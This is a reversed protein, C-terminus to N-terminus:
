TMRAVTNISNVQVLGMREVLDHLAQGFPPECLDHRDLFLPHARHNPILPLM